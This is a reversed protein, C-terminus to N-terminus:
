RGWKRFNGGKLEWLKNRWQYDSMKVNRVNSEALLTIDGGFTSHIWEAMQIESQHSGMKYGFAFSLTGKGPIASKLYEDTVDQIKMNIITGSSATEQLKSKKYHLTSGDKVVDFGSKDSSDVFTQKWEQYNMDDPIYYTKGMEEDRATREGIQGFDEDFYPVTTSRCWPHFPPATVGPEFDKMPYRHRDMAQCIESTVADLTAVIEFQEVGLENFADKQAASSFYAEETMVLRGANNKSVNMKKAIANIAKQPDGGLVLRFSCNSNMLVFTFSNVSAPSGTIDTSVFFFSFM